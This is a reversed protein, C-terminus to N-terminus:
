RVPGAQGSLARDILALDRTVERRLPADEPLTDVLPSWLKRAGELDGSRALALGHFYPAAPGDPELLAARRYAYDAAPSVIGQGHSVLANGLGVWLGADDPAERLGSRLVNAAERTKGQRAIGDSLVLWKVGPGYRDSLTRRRNALSEDFPAALESAKRPSGPLDPRGQWAYGAIGFLLAAAIIEWSMRPARGILIMGAMVLAALAIVIIWGM